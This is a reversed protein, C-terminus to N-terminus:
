GSRVTPAMRVRVHNKRRGFAAVVALRQIEPRGNAAACAAAGGDLDAGLDAVFGSSEDSNSDSSEYRAM